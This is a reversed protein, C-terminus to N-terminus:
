ATKIGSTNSDRLAERRKEVAAKKEKPLDREWEKAAERLELTKQRILNATASIAPLTGYADDRAMEHIQEHLSYLVRTIQFLGAKTHPLPIELRRAQKGGAIDWDMATMPEHKPQYAM